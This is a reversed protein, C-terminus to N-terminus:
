YQATYLVMYGTGGCLQTQNGACPVNCNKLLATTAGFAVDYGCYCRCIGLNTRSSASELSRPEVCETAFEVGMYRYGTCTQACIETTMDPSSSNKNALLRKSGDDTLCGTYTYRPVHQNLQAAKSTAAVAQPRVLSVRPQPQVTRNAPVDRATCGSLAGAVIDCDPTDGTCYNAIPSFETFLRPPSM